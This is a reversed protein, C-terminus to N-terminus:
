SRARFALERADLDPMGQSQARLRHNTLGELRELASFEAPTDALPLLVPPKYYATPILRVTAHAALDTLPLTTDPISM